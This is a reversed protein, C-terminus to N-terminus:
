SCNNTILNFFFRLSQGVAFSGLGAELSSDSERGESEDREHAERLQEITAALASRYTDLPGKLAEFVRQEREDFPM